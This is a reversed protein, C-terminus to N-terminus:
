QLLSQIKEEISKRAFPNATWRVAERYVALAIEKEGETEYFPGILYTLSFSSVRPTAASLVISTTLRLDERSPGRALRKRLDEFLLSYAPSLDPHVAAFADMFATLREPEGDPYVPEELYTAATDLTAIDLAVRRITEADVALRDYRIQDPADGAGHYDEHTGNTFFLYPIQQAAFPAFDSRPGLLDTGLLLMEPTQRGQIVSRLEPSFETGFVVLTWEELDGFSRGLTDLVVVATANELPYVPERAYHRSGNLGREEDDFAIFVFSRSTNAEKLERALELLVAVGAANDSASPRGMGQGDYHAAIIVHELASGSRAVVNRRGPGIDQMQADLGLEEFRDLLYDASEIAGPSQSLRGDRVPDALWEVTMQLRDVSIASVSLLAILLVSLNAFRRSRMM